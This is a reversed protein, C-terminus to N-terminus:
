PVRPSEPKSCQGEGKERAGKGEEHNRGDTEKNYSLDVLVQHFVIRLSPTSGQTNRFTARRESPYCLSNTPNIDRQIREQYVHGSTWLTWGNPQSAARPNIPTSNVTKRKATAHRPSSGTPSPPDKLSRFSVMELGDEYVTPDVKGCDGVPAWIWDDATLFHGNGFISGSIVLKYDALKELNHTHSPIRTDPVVRALWAFFRGDEVDTTPMRPAFPFVSYTYELVFVGLSWVDVATTYREVTYAEPTNYGESICFTKLEPEDNALGFDTRGLYQRAERTELDANPPQAQRGTYMDRGFRVACVTATAVM